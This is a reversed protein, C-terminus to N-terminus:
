FGPYNQKRLEARIKPSGKVMPHRLSAAEAKKQNIGLYEVTVAISKHGLLKSILAIDEGQEYMQVAKSRRMSHTSYESPELGLMVAWSKIIKAYYARTIPKSKRPKTRTFLSDNPSKGSVMIWYALYAKTHDNLAPLVPLNTKQQKTPITTRIKGSPYTVKSVTLALLDGGRLLSDLGVSQLALDHWNETELLHVEIRKTQELTFPEKQGVVAESNWSKRNATKRKVM